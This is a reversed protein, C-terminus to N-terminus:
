TKRWKTHCQSHNRMCLEYMTQITQPKNRRTWFEKSAKNHLCTTNKFNKANTSLIMHNKDKLRNKVNIVTKIKLKKIRVNQVM